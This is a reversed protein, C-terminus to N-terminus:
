GAKKLRIKRYEKGDELTLAGEMWNDRIMTLRIRPKECEVSKSSEDYKWEGSGMEIEKGDVVKSATVLFANPKGEVRSFRYVNIEDRCPSSRDVCVSNGQWVGAIIERADAVKGSTQQAFCGAEGLPLAAVLVAACLMRAM